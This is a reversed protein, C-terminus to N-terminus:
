PTVTDLNKETSVSGGGTSIVHLCVITDHKMGRVETKEPSPLRINVLLMDESCFSLNSDLFMRGEKSVTLEKGMREVARTQEMEVPM